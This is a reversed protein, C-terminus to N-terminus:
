PRPCGCSTTPPPELGEVFVRESFLINNHTLMVEQAQGHHRLHLAPVGGPRIRRCRRPWPSSSRPWPPLDSHKPGEQSSRHGQAHSAPSISSRSSYDVGHFSTPGIYARSEVLNMATLDARQLQPRAVSVAGAKFCAVYAITFEAWSPFQLTVM